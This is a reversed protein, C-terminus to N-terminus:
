PMKSLYEERSLEKGGNAPPDQEVSFSGGMDLDFVMKTRRDDSLHDLLAPVAAAGYNALERMAEYAGTAPRPAFNLGSVGSVAETAMFVNNLFLPVRGYGTSGAQALSDILQNIRRRQAPDDVLQAFTSPAFALVSFAALIVWRVMSIRRLHRSIGAEGVSRSD